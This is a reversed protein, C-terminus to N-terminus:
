TERRLENATYGGIDEYIKVRRATKTHQMVTSSDEHMTEGEVARENPRIARTRAGREVAVISGDIEVAEGWLPYKKFWSAMEILIFLSSIVGSTHSHAVEITLHV